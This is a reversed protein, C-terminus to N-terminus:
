EIRLKPAPLENTAESVDKLNGTMRNELTWNRFTDSTVQALYARPSIEGNVEFAVHDGPAALVLSMGSKDDPTAERPRGVYYVIREGRLVFCYGHDGHGLPDVGIRELVGTVKTTKM